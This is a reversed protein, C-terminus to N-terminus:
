KNLLFQSTLQEGILKIDGLKDAQEVLASLAKDSGLRIKVEVANYIGILESERESIENEKGQWENVADKYEEPILFMIDVPLTVLSKDDRNGDNYYRDKSSFITTKAGQMKVLRSVHKKLVDLPQYQLTGSLIGSVLYNNLDPKSTHQDKLPKLNSELVAKAKTVLYDRQKDNM